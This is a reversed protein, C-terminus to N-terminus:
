NDGYRLAFEQMEKEIETVAQQARRQTIHADELARQLQSTVSRTLCQGLTTQRIEALAGSVNLQRTREPDWIWRHAVRRRLHESALEYTERAMAWAAREIASEVQRPYGDPPPNSQGDLLRARVDIAPHIVMVPKSASGALAAEMREFEDAFAIQHQVAKAGTFKGVVFHFGKKTMRIVPSKIPEGGSPNARETVTEAFNRLRWEEPVAAMRQRIIRLVDDHRKGYVEAIDLTTTTPIGDTVAIHATIGTTLTNAAM